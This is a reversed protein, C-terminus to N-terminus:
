FRIALLFLLLSYGWIEGRPPMIDSLSYCHLFFSIIVIVFASIFIIIEKKSIAKLKEQKLYFFLILLAGIIFPLYSYHIVPILFSHVTNKFSQILTFDPLGDLRVRYGGSYINVLLSIGIAFAALLLNLPSLKIQPFYFRNLLLLGMIGMISCIANVENLGGIFIALLFVLVINRKEKILLSFMYLCIIASLLHNNASSVWGWIEWRGEFLLFYVTATFVLSFSISKSFLIEKQLFTKNYNKYLNNVGFLFLLLLVTLYVAYLTYNYQLFYFSIACVIHSFWRGNAINYCFDISGAIGLKRVIGDFFCDDLVFRYFLADHFFYFLFGAVLAAPLIYKTLLRM